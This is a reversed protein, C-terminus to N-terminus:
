KKRSYQLGINIKTRFWQRTAASAIEANYRAVLQPHFRALTKAGWGIGKRTHFDTTTSLSLLLRFVPEAFVPKLGKKVAYHAAVGVTRVMWKNEHLALRQLLPITQEPHTLLAYGVVREGIIDCVYWQDGFQIYEGAKGIAGEFDQTLRLQLIMGALVQSGIEGLGIIRDTIAIQESTPIAAAIEKAAYELLPFKVKKMLLTDHLLTIFAAQGNQQLAQLAEAVVEKITVKSTISEM